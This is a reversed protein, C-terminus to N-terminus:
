PLIQPTSAPRITMNCDLTIADTEWPMSWDDQWKGTSTVRVLWTNNYPASPNPGASESVSNVSAVSDVGVTTLDSAVPYASTPGKYVVVRASQVSFIGLYISPKIWSLRSVNYSFAVQRGGRNVPVNPVVQASTAYGQPVVQPQLAVPRTRPPSGDFAVLVPANCDRPPLDVPASYPDAAQTVVAAKQAVAPQLCAALLAATALIHASRHNM